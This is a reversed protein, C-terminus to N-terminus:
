DCYQYHIFLAKYSTGKFPNPRGHACVASEYFLIQGANLELEQWHGNHGQIHLPWDKDKYLPIVVGIHHTDQRDYHNKLFSGNTYERVGYVASQKLKKGSWIEAAKLLSQAVHNKVEDNLNYLYTKFPIYFDKGDFNEEVKEATNNLIMNLLVDPLRKLVFGENTTKPVPNSKDRTEVVNKDTLPSFNGVEHLFQIYQYQALDKSVPIDQGYPIKNIWEYKCFLEKNIQKALDRTNGADHYIANEYFNHESWNPWSFNLSKPIETPINYKWFGWLTTWMEATWPNVGEADTKNDKNNESKLLHYLSAAKNYADEWVILPINDFIYQAGGAEEEKIKEIGIGFSELMLPLYKEGKKRIRSADLYDTKSMYVKGLPFDDLPRTLMVDQDCFFYQHKSEEPFTQFFKYIGYIKTLAVYDKEGHPTLYIFRAKKYKSHLLSWEKSVGNHVMTVVVNIDEEKFGNKLCSEIMVETQWAFILQSSASTILKM